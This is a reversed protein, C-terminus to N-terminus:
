QCTPLVSTTEQPWAAGGRPDTARLFLARSTLLPQHGDQQRLSPRTEKLAWTWLVQTWSAAQDAATCRRSEWLGSPSEEKFKLKMRRERFLNRQKSVVQEQGLTSALVPDKRQWLTRCCIRSGASKARAPGHLSCHLILGVLEWAQSALIMAWGLQENGPPWTELLVVPHPCIKHFHSHKLNIDQCIDLVLNTWWANGLFFTFHGSSPCTESVLLNIQRM